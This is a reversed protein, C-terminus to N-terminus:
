VQLSQPRVVATQAFFGGVVADSDASERGDRVAEFAAAEQFQELVEAVVHAVVDVVDARGALVHSRGDFSQPVNLAGDPEQESGGGEVAIQREKELHDLRQDLFDTRQGSQQIRCWNTIWKKWNEKFFILFIEIKEIKKM